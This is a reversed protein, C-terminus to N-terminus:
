NQTTKDVIKIPFFSCSLLFRLILLDVLSGGPWFSLIEKLYWDFFFYMLIMNILFVIGWWPLFVKKVLNFYNFNPIIQFDKYKVECARKFAICSPPLEIFIMSLLSILTIGTFTTYSHFSNFTKISNTSSPSIKFLYMLLIFVLLYLPFFYLFYLITRWFYAWYFTLFRRFSLTNM